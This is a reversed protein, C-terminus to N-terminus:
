IAKVIGTENAFNVVIEGYPNLLLIKKFPESNPILGIEIFVGEVDLRREERTKLDRIKIGEVHSKGEIEVVEFELFITPNSAENLKDILIRDGTLPTISILYVHNSIKIM